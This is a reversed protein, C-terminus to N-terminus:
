NKLNLKELFYYLMKQKRTVVRAECTMGAKIESEEGKNSYLKNKEISGEGTFFVTGRENDIKSNVSLSDIRGTLFGYENYPLSAFSYKIEQGEKINAIDKDAIILDVKYKDEKPIVDAVIIGTQIMIGAKLEAKLDLKGDNESKVECSDISHNIDKLELDIEKLKENNLNRQEEIQSLIAIKNKEKSLGVGEDFKNISSDISKIQTNLDDISNQIQLKIDSNLKTLATKNNQIEADVQVIQENPANQNKLEEKNKELQSIKDEVPKRSIEYNNFQQSFVSGDENYNQNNDISKNLTKFGDIKKNLDNKSVTLSNKDEISVKNGSEYAKYKYYFEKEDESEKFHNTNDEISKNFKELNEITKNIYIKQNDLKGKQSQLSTDDITYLLDGKKVDQGDQMNVEKVAGSVQNSVTYVQESPKVIGSIKVVVEKESFWSWLLFSFVSVLLIYIFISTFKHPKGEMVQRSDSLEEINEIKFRM